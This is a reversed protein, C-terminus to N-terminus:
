QCIRLVAGDNEFTNKTQLRGRISIGPIFNILSLFKILPLSEDHKADTTVLCERPSVDDKSMKSVFVFGTLRISLVM